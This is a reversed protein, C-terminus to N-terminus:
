RPAGPPPGGGGSRTTTAPQSTMGPVGGGSMRAMRSKMDEQQSVLSASPLLLVTDKDTLGSIVESYDM